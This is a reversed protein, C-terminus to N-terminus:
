SSYISVADTLTWTLSSALRASSRARVRKKKKFYRKTNPKAVGRGPRYGFRRRNNMRNILRQGRALGFNKTCSFTCPSSLKTINTAPLFADLLIQSGAISPSLDSAQCLAATAPSMQFRPPSVSVYLLEKSGTIVTPVSLAYSGLWPLCQWLSGSRHVTWQSLAFSFM